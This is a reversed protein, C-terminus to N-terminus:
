SQYNEATFTREGAADTFTPAAINTPLYSLPSIPTQHTSHRRLPRRRKKKRRRLFMERWNQVEM